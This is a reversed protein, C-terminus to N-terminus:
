SDRPSPSTYLLCGKTFLLSSDLRGTLMRAILEGIEKTGMGRWDVAAVVFGREQAFGRMFSYNIEEREGFFGHGYQMLRAPEFDESEPMASRPVQLTFPVEHTGNAVIKGSADRSLTEPFLVDEGLYLPM